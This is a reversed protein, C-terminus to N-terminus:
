SLKAVLLGAMMERVVDLEDQHIVHGLNPYIRETVDAGLRRM